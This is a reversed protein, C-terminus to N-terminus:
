QLRRRLGPLQCGRHYGRGEPPIANIFEASTRTTFVEVTPDATAVMRWPRCRAREVERLRRLTSRAFGSVSIPNMTTKNMETVARRTTTTGGTECARRPRAM